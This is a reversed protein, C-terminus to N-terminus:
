PFSQLDGASVAGAGAIDRIEAAASTTASAIQSRGFKKAYTHLSGEISNETLGARGSGARSPLACHVRGAGIWLSGRGVAAKPNAKPLAAAPINVLLM